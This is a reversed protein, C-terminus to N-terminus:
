LKSVDSLLVTAIKDLDKESPYNEDNLLKKGLEIKEARTDSMTRLESLLSTAKDISKGEVRKDIVTDASIPVSTTEHKRSQQIRANLPGGSPSFRPDISTNM